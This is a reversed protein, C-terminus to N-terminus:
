QATHSRMMCQASELAFYYVSCYVIASNILYSPTNGNYMHQWALVHCVIAIGSSFLQRVKLLNSAAYKTALIDAIDMRETSKM